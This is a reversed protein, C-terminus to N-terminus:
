FPEVIFSVKSANPCGHYLEKEAEQLLKWFIKAHENPPENDDDRIEGHMTGRILSRVLGTAGHGEDESPAPADENVEETHGPPTDHQVQVEGAEPSADSGDGVENHLGL